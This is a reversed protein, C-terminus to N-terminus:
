QFGCPFLSPRRLGFPFLSLTASVISALDFEVVVGRARVCSRFWVFGFGGGGGVESAISSVSVISSVAWGAHLSYHWIM